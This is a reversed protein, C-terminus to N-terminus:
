TTEWEKNSASSLRTDSFTTSFISSASQKAITRSPQVSILWDASTFKMSVVGSGTKKLHTSVPPFRWVPLYAASRTFSMMSSISEDFNESPLWPIQVGSAQRDASASNLALSPNDFYLPMQSAALFTTSLTHHFPKHAPLDGDIIALRIRLRGAVLADDISCMYAHECHSAYDDLLFELESAQSYRKWGANLEEQCHSWGCCFSVWHWIRLQHLYMWPFVVTTLDRTLHWLSNNWYHCCCCELILHTMQHQIKKLTQRLSHNRLIQLQLTGLTVRLSSQSFNLVSNVSYPIFGSPWQWIVIRYIYKTSKRNGIVPLLVTLGTMNENAIM